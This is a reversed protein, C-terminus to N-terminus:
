SDRWWARGPEPWSSRGGSTGAESGREGDVSWGRPDPSTVGSAPGDSGLVRGYLGQVGGGAAGTGPRRAPAPRIVVRVEGAGTLGSYGGQSSSSSGAGAGSTPGTPVVPSPASPSAAAQPPAGPPRSSPMNPAPNPTLQQQINAQATARRHARVRRRFLFAVGSLLLFGAFVAGVIIGAIQGTSLLSAPEPPLSKPPPTTDSLLLDRHVQNPVIITLNAASLSNYALDSHCIPNCLKSDLQWYSVSHYDRPSRLIPHGPDSKPSLPPRCDAGVDQRPTPAQAIPPVPEGMKPRMALPLSAHPPWTASPRKVGLFSTVTATTTQTRQLPDIDTIVGTSTADFIRTCPTGTFSTVTSTSTQTRLVFPLRGVASPGRIHREMGATGNEQRGNAM